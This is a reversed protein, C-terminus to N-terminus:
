SVRLSPAVLWRACVPQSPPGWWIHLPYSAWDEHPGWCGSRPMDRLSNRDTCVTERVPSGQRVDTPFSTDLGASVQCAMTPLYEIPEWGGQPSLLSDTILSQPLHFPIPTVILIYISYLFLPLRTRTSCSKLGLVRSASAPPNRLELVAQDVFYTGPCGPLCLSVRDWLFYFFFFFSLPLNVLYKDIM